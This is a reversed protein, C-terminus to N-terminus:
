HRGNLRAGNMCFRKGGLVGASMSGPGDREANAEPNDPSTANDIGLMGMLGGDQGPANQPEQAPGGPIQNNDQEQPSDTGAIEEGWPEDTIPMNLKKRVENKTMCKAQIGTSIEKQIVEHDDIRRCRIEVILDDGFYTALQRTLKAAIRNVKPELTLWYLQKLTAFLTSYSSDEVMGAAPKTIGFGGLVFSTLQDWSSAYDM